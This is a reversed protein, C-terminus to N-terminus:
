QISLHFGTMKSNQIHENKIRIKIICNSLTSSLPYPTGSPGEDM